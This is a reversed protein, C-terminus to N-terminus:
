GYKIDVHSKINISEESFNLAKEEQGACYIYIYIDKYLAHALSSRSPQAMQPQKESPREGRM